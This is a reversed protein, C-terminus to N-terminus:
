TQARHQPKRKVWLASPQRQNLERTGPIKNM